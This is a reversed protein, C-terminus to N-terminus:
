IESIQNSEIEFIKYPANITELVHELRDLNTHTIFIQGFNNAGVKKIIHSVRSADLKDFIDDLLLLPTSASVKKLFDFQALKLATIFTKQQGQSGMKKLPRGNFEFNLDDKHIGRTTYLLERDKPLSNNLLNLFPEDHLHSQYVIQAKEPANSIDAYHQEFVPVLKEIFQKRKEFLVTGTQAIEEDLIRIYTVDFVQNYGTDKLYKNRQTILRNYTLLFQLYQKDYQSIVGDIFKRRDESGETILQTDYPSILVLPILGIHDSMRDYDITNRRFIKGANKKVACYIDDTAGANQFTGQIVFFENGNNINQSDVPNFFSKTFSLYYIADLLNSKGVGNLGVFCNIKDSFHLDAQQYNKFNLLSIKELVM